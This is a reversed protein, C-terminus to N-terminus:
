VFYFGSISLQGSTDVPITAIAANNVSQVPYMSTSNSQVQAALSAGATYTLNSARASCVSVFSDNVSTFPLGGIILSGTGTQGSWGLDIKFNVVKGIKTYSGLQVTYTTTGATGDGVITPTFTGEEYDDLTNADSSAAQTAPFTIGTGNATASGGQLILAGTSNLRMREALAGASSLTAFQMYGANGGTASEYKGAISAKVNVGAGASPGAFGIVGGNDGGSTESSSILLQQGGAGSDVAPTPGVVYLEPASSTGSVLAGTNIFVSGASTIRMRETPTASGDASTSFVLRGPMDASAGPTGDVAAGISAADSYGTGNAGTFILNGLSDGSAVITNTGVTASKSRGLYLAPAGAANSSYRIISQFALTSGELQLGGGFSTNDSTRGILLRGSADLTMAQTFTATAGATGSPAISWAHLGTTMTYESAAGTTLYKRAGDFYFNNGLYTGTAATTGAWFVGTAGVQLAKFSSSWANPSSTGIGVNGASTIRMAEQTNSGPGSSVYFNLTGSNGVNEYTSRISVDGYITSGVYYGYGRLLVNEQSVNGSAGVYIAGDNVNLKGLPISAGIGVLGASTIRMRETGFSANAVGLLTGSSGTKFSLATPMASASTFTGESVGVVSATYLLNAATYSTSTGWQGGFAYTGLDNNTIIGVGDMKRNAAGFRGSFSSNSDARTGLTQIAPISGTGSTSTYDGVFIGNGRNTIGEVYVNLIGVPASTGIGVNGSSDIRMRETASAGFLLASSATNNWLQLNTGDYYVYGSTSTSGGSSLSLIAQTAGNITINGRSGGTNLASTNGVAVNGSSDIRMSEVGGETFAITDAAPFFIGTNTDGTTTIAPASVTGASFTAVGTAGLTTFNGAAATNAGVIGDFNAANIRGSVGLGGTIVATGTTTSTSATGATFTTAGSASLTGTTLSTLHTVADVVNTGNNYVFMTKGAPVAIGTGSTNKVTVADALGNNILYLKDIQCGSGLILQRAGGSTGTLNLRLNRAAQSANTNTLTVTVDASSFAVDASGTIAEGIAISFNDNTTTGWTGTQEGTGILEIKLDSYTSAM